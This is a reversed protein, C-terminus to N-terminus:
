KILFKGARNIQLQLENNRNKENRLSEELNDIKEQLKYMKIQMRSFSLAGKENKEKNMDDYLLSCSTSADLMENKDLKQQLVTINMSFDSIQNEFEEKQKNWKIRELLYQKRLEALSEKVTLCKSIILKLSNNEALLAHIDKKLEHQLEALKTLNMLFDERKKQEEQNSKLFKDNDAQLIKLRFALDQKEKQLINLAEKVSNIELADTTKVSSADGAEQDLHMRVETIYVNESNSKNFCSNLEDIKLSLQEIEQQYEENKRILQEIETKQKEEEIQREYLEQQLNFCLNKM